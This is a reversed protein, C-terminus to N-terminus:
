DVYYEPNTYIGNHSLEFHLHPGTALGTEGVLAILQGTEVKEGSSVYLKSCHAYLSKWGGEHEVTIYNGYSDSYGAFSVTGTCFAYINEGSWAAFDTGYHFRVDGRIPHVRYGFGSSNYGSVPVVYDYPFQVYDYSVTDPLEYESFAKQSELFTSVAEPVAASDDKATDEATKDPEYKEGQNYAADTIAATEAIEASPCSEVNQVPVATIEIHSVPSIDEGIRSFIERYDLDTDFIASVSNLFRGTQEPFIFKIGFLVSIILLVTCM